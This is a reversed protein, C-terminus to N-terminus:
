GNCPAASGYQPVPSNALPVTLMRISDNASNLSRRARTSRVISRCSWTPSASCLWVDGIMVDDVVQKEGPAAAVTLQYPGGASM